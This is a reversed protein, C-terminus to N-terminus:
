YIIKFPTHNLKREVYVYRLTKLFPLIFLIYYYIYYFKRLNRNLVKPNKKLCYKPEIHVLVM